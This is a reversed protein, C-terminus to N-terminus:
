CRRVPPHEARRRVEQWDIPLSPAREALIALLDRDTAVGGCLRGQGAEAGRRAAPTRRARLQPRALPLGRTSALVAAMRGTDVVMTRALADAHALAAATGPVMDPLIGWELQWAAGDREHAHLAAQHMGGVLTANRRALTVLAEARIPNSKQPMTSSGGGDAERVEGVENQALLLM